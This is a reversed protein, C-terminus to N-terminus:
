HGSQNVIYQAERGATQTQLSVAGDRIDMSIDGLAVSQLSIRWDPTATSGVNVAIARFKGGAGAKIGTAVAKPGNKGPQMDTEAGDIWLQYTHTEGPANTTNVWAHSTLSTSYAGADLVEVSYNGEIVGNGLTVGVLSPDSVTTDFSAGGVADQLNSLANNLS